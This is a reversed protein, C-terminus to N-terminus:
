VRDLYVIHLMCTFLRSVRKPCAFNIPSIVSPTSMHTQKRHSIHYHYMVDNDLIDIVDHVYWGVVDGRVGDVLRYYQERDVQISSYGPPLFFHHVKPFLAPLPLMWPFLIQQLISLELRLM